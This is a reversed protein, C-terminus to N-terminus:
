KDIKKLEDENIITARSQAEQKLIDSDEEITMEEEKDLGVLDTLNEGILEYEEDSLLKIDTEDINVDYDPQDYSWDSQKSYEYVRIKKDNIQLTHTTSVEKYTIEENIKKIKIM